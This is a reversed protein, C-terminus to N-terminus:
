PKKEQSAAPKAPNQPSAQSSPNGDGIKEYAKVLGTLGERSSESDAAVPAAPTKAKTDQASSEEDEELLGAINNDVTVPQVKGELVRMVYSSFTQNPRLSFAVVGNMKDVRIENNSTKSWADNIREMAVPRWELSVHNQDIATVLIDSNEHPTNQTIKQGNIWVAWNDRGHYVLSELFFQPYVFYRNTKPSKRLGALQNLFDEENFQADEEHGVFHKKYTNLALRIDTIEEPTFFISKIKRYQSKGFFGSEGVGGADSATAPAGSASTLPDSIGAAEAPAPAPAPAWQLPEPAPPATQASPPAAAPSPAHDRQM